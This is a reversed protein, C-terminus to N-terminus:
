GRSGTRGTRGLSAKDPAATDKATAAKKGPAKKGPAAKKTGASAKKTGASAKKAGTKKAPAAKGASAKKAPAEKAVGEAAPGREGARRLTGELHELDEMIVSAERRLAGVVEAAAHRGEEVLVGARNRADERLKSRSGILQEAIQKARAAALGVLAVAAQGGMRLDDESSM